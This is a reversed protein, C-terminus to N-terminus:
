GDNQLNWLTYVTSSKVTVDDLAIQKDIPIDKIVKAGKALGIPLLNDKRATEYTDILIYYSVGGIADLVGSRVPNGQIEKTRLEENLGIM